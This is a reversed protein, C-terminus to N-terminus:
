FTHGPTGGYRYRPVTLSPTNDVRGDQADLALELISPDGPKGLKSKLDHAIDEPTRLGAGLTEQTKTMADAGPEGREFVRLFLSRVAGHKPPASVSITYGEATRTPASVVARKLDFDDLSIPHESRHLVYSDDAGLRQRAIRVHISQAIGHAENPTLSPDLLRIDVRAQQVGSTRSSRELTRVASEAIDATSGARFVADNVGVKFRSRLRTGGGPAASTVPEFLEVTIADGGGLKFTPEQPLRFWGAGPVNPPPARHGAEAVLLPPAREAVGGLAEAPPRPQPPTARYGWGEKDLVLHPLRSPEIIKAFRPVDSGVNHGGTVQLKIGSSWVVSPTKIRSTNGRSRSAQRCQKEVDDVDGMAAAADKWSEVNQLTLRHKHVFDAAAKIEEAEARARPTQLMQSFASWNEPSEIAAEVFGRRVLAVAMHRPATADNCARLELQVFYLNAAVEAARKAKAAAIKNKIGESTAEKYRRAVEERHEAPIRLLDEELQYALYEDISVLGREALREGGEKREGDTATMLRQFADTGASELLAIAATADVEAEASRARDVRTVGLQRFAQFLATYQVARVLYPDSQGAFFDRAREEYSAARENSKGDPLYSMHLAGTRNMWYLTRDESVNVLTGSAKTNWNYTMSAGGLEESIPKRFAWRTPERPYQFREYDIMGNMSWRKLMQDTLNLLSGLESDVLPASLLIPAWDKGSRMKGAFLQTREYSQQLEDLSTTALMKVTEFRLPPSVEEPAIRERGIVLVADEDSVAGLILDSELGFMRVNAKQEEFPGTKPLSWLVLGAASSVYVGTQRPDLLDAAQRPAGGDVSSFSTGEGFVWDYVEAPRVEIDLTGNWSNAASIPALRARYASGFVAVHLDSTLESLDDASMPPVVGVLDETWGDVGVGHREVFLASLAPNVKSLKAVTVDAPPESLILVRCGGEFPESAAIQQAHFPRQKRYEKWVADVTGADVGCKAFAVRADEPLSLVSAPLAAACGSTGLGLSLLLGALAPRVISHNKPHHSV